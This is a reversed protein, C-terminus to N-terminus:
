RSVGNDGRYELAGPAAAAPPQPRLTAGIAALLSSRASQLFLHDGEVMHLQFEKRTHVRWPEMAERRVMRDRTAGFCTLPCALPEAERYEYTELLTLDARLCPVLLQRLEPDNMLQLPVSDYRRHVEELLEPDALHRIAPHERPLQPARSASVFLHSPARLGSGGLARALEFAVVGGLSHGYLVYPRDLWGELESVLAEVLAPIATFAEERLRNERGPPQVYCVDADPM